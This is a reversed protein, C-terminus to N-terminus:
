ICASGPHERHLSPYGRASALARGNHASKHFLARIADLSEQSDSNYLSSNLLSNPSSLSNDSIVTLQSLQETAAIATIATKNEKRASTTATTSKSSQAEKTTFRGKKDKKTTTRCKKNSKKMKEEFAAAREGESNLEKEEESGSLLRDDDELMMRQQIMSIETNEGSARWFANRMLLGWGLTEDCTVCKGTTPLAYENETLKSSSLFSEALCTTHYVQLCGTNSCVLYELHDSDQKLDSVSESCVGCTSHSHFSHASQSFYPQHLENSIKLGKIGGLGDGQHINLRQSQTVAKQSSQSPSPPAPEAGKALSTSTERIDVSVKIHGPVEPINHKNKNWVQRVKEDFIHFELPWRHLSRSNLLLRLNGLIKPLQGISRTSSFRDDASIHRSSHSHQWAHEFQLASIKSPFGSVICVMEWPRKDEHKTKWAGNSIEGNHQRLRRLPLPTSGIYFSRTMKSSRLLYCCYFQSYSHPAM